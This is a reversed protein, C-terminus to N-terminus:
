EVWRWEGEGEWVWRGGPWAMWGGHVGPALRRWEEEEGGLPGIAVEETEVCIRPFHFTVPEEIRVLPTAQAYDATVLAPYRYRDPVDAPYSDIHPPAHAPDDDVLITHREAKYRIVETHVLKTRKPNPLPAETPKQRKTPSEFATEDEDAQTQSSSTTTSPITQSPRSRKRRQKINTVENDTDNGEEQPQDIWRCPVGKVRCSDCQPKGGICPGKKARICRVCRPGPVRLRSHTRNSNM